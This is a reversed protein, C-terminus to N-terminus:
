DILITCEMRIVMKLNIKSFLKMGNRGYEESIDLHKTELLLESAGTSPM